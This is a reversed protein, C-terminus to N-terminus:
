KKDYKKVSWNWYSGVNLSIFVVNAVIIAYSDIMFGFVVGCVCAFCGVIFGLSNHRGLLIISVVVLLMNFYDTFYYQLVNNIIDSIM